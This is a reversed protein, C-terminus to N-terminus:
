KKNGTFEMTRGAMRGSAMEMTGTMSDGEVTASYNAQISGMPTEISSTWSLVNGKTSIEFTGSDNKGTLEGNSDTITLISTRTGMPSDMTMEWEGAPSTLLTSTTAEVASSDNETTQQTNQITGCGSAAIAVLTLLIHKM